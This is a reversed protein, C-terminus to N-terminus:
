ALASVFTGDAMRHANDRTQQIATDLDGVTLRGAARVARLNATTVTDAGPIVPIGLKRRAWGPLTALALINLTPVVLRLGTLRRPVPPNFSSWLGRIAEPTAALRDRQGCFYADLEAMSGPVRDTPLGVLGAAVRNEDVYRDAEQATIVGSRRAIHAYSGIEACHVWMLGAPEDLRFTQGTDPDIGRLRAHIARVRRGATDAEEGTGYTRITVYQATRLFRAWAKKRDFLASNQYTGRMVRPHLSQLYLARLGAVWMIPEVNVRWTVSGPGYLGDDGAM